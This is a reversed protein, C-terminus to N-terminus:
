LGIPENTYFLIYASANQITSEPATFCRTDDFTSWQQTRSNKCYATYHGWDLDGFHNVVAYLNYKPIRQFPASCYPSIDLNRLPYHVETKLKRKVLDSCDFRKLHFILIRPAKLLTTKAQADQYSDCYSCHVTNNWSLIDQGFFNNLCDKKLDEHLGNLTYILFEQADQQTRKGFAPHLDSFASWFADPSIHKVNGFWMDSMVGAFASALEGRGSVLAARHKGSVFYKVLPSTSCLCQLVANMYCTNGLNSLGVAGNEMGQKLWNEPTCRGYQMDSCGASSMSYCLQDDDGNLCTGRSQKERTNKHCLELTKLEGSLARTFEHMSSDKLPTTSKKSHLLFSNICTMHAMLWFAQMFVGSSNEGAKLPLQVPRDWGLPHCSPALSSGANENKNECRVSSSSFFSLPENRLIASDSLSNIFRFSVGRLNFEDLTKGPLPASVALQVTCSRGYYPALLEQLVYALQTCRGRLHSLPHLSFNCIFGTDLDMLLALRLGSCEPHGKIHVKFKKICVTKGPICTKCFSTALRQQLSQIELFVDSDKRQKNVCLYHLIDEFRASCYAGTEIEVSNNSCEKTSEQTNDCLAGQLLVALWALFEEQNVAKWGATSRKNQKLAVSAKSNINKLTAEIFEDALLMFSEKRSSQQQRPPRPTVHIVNIASAVPNVRNRKSLPRLKACLNWSPSVVEVATCENPTWPEEQVAATAVDM